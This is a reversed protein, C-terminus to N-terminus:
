RLQRCWMSDQTSVERRDRFENLVDVWAAGVRPSV